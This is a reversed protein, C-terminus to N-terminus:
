ETLYWLACFGADAHRHEIMKKGLLDKCSELMPNPAELKQLSSRGVHVPIFSGGIVTIPLGGGKYPSRERRPKSRSISLARSANILKNSRIGYPAFAIPTGDGNEKLAL